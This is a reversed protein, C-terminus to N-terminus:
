ASVPPHRYDSREFAESPRVNERGGMKQALIRMAKTTAQDIWKRSTGLEAAIQECTLGKMRQRLIHRLNTPLRGIRGRLIAVQERREALVGPDASEIRQTLRTARRDLAAQYRSRRDHERVGVTGLTRQQREYLKIAGVFAYRYALTTLRGRAPDFADVARIVDALLEAKADDFDLGPIRRRNAVAGAVDAVSLILRERADRSGRKGSKAKRSLEAEEQRTLRVRPYKLYPVSPM